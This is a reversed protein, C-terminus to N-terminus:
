LASEERLSVLKESIVVAHNFEEKIIAGIRDKGRKAPVVHDMAVYFVISEKERALAFDLIGKVSTCAERVKAPDERTDFVKGDAMVQLYMEAEGNPDWTVPAQEDSTLESRMQAFTKEHDDESEALWQLTEVMASDSVHEAAQRYFSAGNREIQEAMAFIEDANFEVGM